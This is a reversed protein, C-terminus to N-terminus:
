GDVATATASWSPAVHSSPISGTEKGTKFAEAHVAAEM